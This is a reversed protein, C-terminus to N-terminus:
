QFRRPSLVGYPCGSGQAWNPVIRLALVREHQPPIKQAASRSASLVLCPTSLMAGAGGILAISKFPRGAEPGSPSRRNPRGRPWTMVCHRLGSHMDRYTGAAGTVARLYPYLAFFPLWGTSGM